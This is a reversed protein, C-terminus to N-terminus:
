ITEWKGLPCCAKKFLTKTKMFCGCKSCRGDERLFECLSCLDIRQKYITEDVALGDGLVVGNVVDKATNVFGKLQEFTTPLKKSDIHEDGCNEQFCAGFPDNISSM